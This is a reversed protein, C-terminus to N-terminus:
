SNYNLLGGIDKYIGFNPELQIYYNGVPIGIGYRKKFDEIIENLTDISVKIYEAIEYLSNCGNRMAEVLDNPEVIIKFGNRRAVLELKKNRIDDLNTINGCTTYHHGLEEALVEYKEISTMNSNIIIINEIDNSLYKGCKKNTGLDIEIVEINQKEAQILLEEYKTM